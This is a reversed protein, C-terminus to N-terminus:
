GRVEGHFKLCGEDKEATGSEAAHDGKRRLGAVAATERPKTVPSLRVQHTRYWSRGGIADRVV